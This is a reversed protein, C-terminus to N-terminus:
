VLVRSHGVIAILEAGVVLTAIVVLHVSILVLWRGLTLMRRGAYVRQMALPLYALMWGLPILQLYDWFSILELKGDFLCMGIWSVSGPLIIMLCTLLFAFANVHLAFSLHEGYNRGANRYILKLYLAFLPLTAILMYPLNTSFGRNLIASKTADPESMFQKLNHAWKANFKGLWSAGTDAWTVPRQPAGTSVPVEDEYIRIFM